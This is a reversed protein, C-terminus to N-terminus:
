KLVETLNLEFIIKEKGGDMDEPEKPGESYFM